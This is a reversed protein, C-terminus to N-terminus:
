TASRIVSLYTIFEFEYRNGTKPTKHHKRFERLDVWMYHGGFDVKFLKDDEKVKGIVRGKKKITQTIM